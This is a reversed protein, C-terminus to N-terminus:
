STPRVREIALSLLACEAAVHLKVAVVRLEGELACHLEQPRGQRSQSSDLM